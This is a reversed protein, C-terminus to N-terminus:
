RRELLADVLRRIASSVEGVPRTGDVVKIRGPEAEALRLYGARVREHFALSEQEIRDPAGGRTARALGVQAPVDLVLTLDPCVDGTAIAHLVRLAEGSLGRGAGQYATTSDSFRDCLVIRGAALAPRIREAVHQARAAEYLLLETVPSMSANDPSLLVDRIAEAIPTGGPERTEEVDYRLSELYQHLLTIQTSKGCGEVGEFTIFLGRAAGDSGSM